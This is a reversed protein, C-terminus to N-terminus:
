GKPNRESRKGKGPSKQPIKPNEGEVNEPEDQVIEKVPPKYDFEWNRYWEDKYLYIGGGLVSHWYYGTTCNIWGEEDYKFEFLEIPDEWDGEM